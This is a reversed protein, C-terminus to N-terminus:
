TSYEEVKLSPDTPAVWYTIVIPKELATKVVDNNRLTLYLQNPFRVKFLAVLPNRVSRGVSDWETMGQAYYLDTNTIDEVEM